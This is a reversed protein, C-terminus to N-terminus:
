PPPKPRADFRAMFGRSRKLAEDLSPTAERRAFEAPGAASRALKPSPGKEGADLAPRDLLRLGLGMALVFLGANVGVLLAKGQKSQLFPM